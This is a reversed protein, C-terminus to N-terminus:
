LPLRRPMEPGLAAIHNKVIAVDLRGSLAASPDGVGGGRVLLDFRM